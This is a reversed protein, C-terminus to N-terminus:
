SNHVLEIEIDVMEVDTGNSELYMRIKKDTDTHVGQEYVNCLTFYPKSLDSRGLQVSLYAARGYIESSDKYLGLFIEKRFKEALLPMSQRLLEKVGDDETRRRLEEKRTIIIKSLAEIM